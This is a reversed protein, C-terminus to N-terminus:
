TYFTDYFGHTVSEVNHYNHLRESVERLYVLHTVIVFRLTGLNKTLSELFELFELPM